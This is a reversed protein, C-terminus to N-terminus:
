RYGWRFTITTKSSHFTCSSVRNKKLETFFNQLEFGCGSRSELTKNYDCRLLGHCLVTPMRKRRHPRPNTVRKFAELRSECLPCFSSTRFEDILFVKLGNKKLSKILGKIRTPDQFRVNAASWNGLVLVCESGFKNRLKKCLNLDNQDYYLKSSFKMKRFPLLQLKELLRSAQQKLGDQNSRSMRAGIELIQTKEPDTFRRSIHAQKMMEDLYVSFLDNSTSKAPATEPQPFYGRMRVIFVNGFYLDANNKIHFDFCKNPYYRQNVHQTKNGYYPYLTKSVLARVKVYKTYEEIDVSSSKTNSLKTESSQVIPPKTKKMLIRFHRALKSREMKTYISTQKERSTSTEKMCYLLDRRGPDMLVCKGNIENLEERTLHEIYKTNEIEEDTTKVNASKRSINANSPRRDTDTNQKLVSVGVGDTELTGQFRLSREPGQSKFAKDKLKVAAGWTQFKNKANPATKYKLIHFHVIKSDLTMYCPIFTTRLPFCAFQTIGELAFLGAIRMFAKFHNAPRAKVDYFISKRQFTYDDPYSKLVTEIKERTYPDNIDTDDPMEKKEVAQKIRKLPSYVREFLNKSIGEKDVNNNALEERIGAVLEKKKFIKNLLVVLNKGFHAKINNLYATQIKTCEYLAIQQANKFVIPQYDAIRCYSEKHKNILIRYNVTRELLKAPRSSKQTLSLFVEMFFLKNIYDQLNFNFDEKLEQLFMYLMNVTNVLEHLSRTHDPKWIAKVTTKITMVRKVIPDDTTSSGPISDVIDSKVPKAESKSSSATSTYTSRPTTTQKSSEGVKSKTILPEFPEDFGWDEVTSTESELASLLPSDIAKEKGKSKKKSGSGPNDERSKGKRKIPVPQFDDDSIEEYVDKNKYAKNKEPVSTQQRKGKRKM